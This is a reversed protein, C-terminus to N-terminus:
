QEAGPEPYLPVIDLVLDVPIATWGAESFDGDSTRAGALVICRITNGDIEVDRFGYWCGPQEWVTMEADDPNGGAAQTIDAWRIMVLKGRYVSLDRGQASRNMGRGINM